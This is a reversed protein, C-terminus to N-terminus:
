FPLGGNRRTFVAIGMHDLHLHSIFLTTKLTSENVSALKIKKFSETEYLYPISPLQNTALLFELESLTEDVQETDGGVSLGFDCIVRAQATQVEMINGGITHLGSWFRYYTM